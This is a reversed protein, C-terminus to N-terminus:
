NEYPKEQQFYGGILISGKQAVTLILV